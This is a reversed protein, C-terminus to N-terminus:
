HPLPPIQDLQTRALDRQKYGSTAIRTLLQRARKLNGNSINKMALGYVIAFDSPDTHFSEDLFEDQYFSPIKIDPQAAKARDLIEQYLLLSSVSFNSRLEEFVQWMLGVFKQRPEETEIQDLLQALATFKQSKM